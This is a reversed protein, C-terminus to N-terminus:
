KIAEFGSKAFGFYGIADEDGEIGTALINDDESSTGDGRHTATEDVKTIVTEVFYDFTGSDTGPYYLSLDQDPFSPDVQNWNTFGGSKFIDHLQQVTLCEVFDNEPHVMVTLADIGVQLEVVDEIGNAACNELEEPAVPDGSTKIPRSADSVEIEGNCFLEFGGGTGSFAVNVLVDGAVADFEEAVAATIPYVTSSGDINIEGSLSGYDFEGDDAPTEEGAPTTAAATEDGDDGTDDDDDGCAAFAAAFAVIALLSALFLLRGKILQM